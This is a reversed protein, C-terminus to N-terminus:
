SKRAELDIIRKKERAANLMNYVYRLNKQRMTAINKPSVGNDYLFLFDKETPSLEFPKHHIRDTPM